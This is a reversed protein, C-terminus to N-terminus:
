RFWIIYVIIQIFLAFSLFVRLFMLKNSRRERDKSKDNGAMTGVGAFVTLLVLVFTVIMSIKLASM